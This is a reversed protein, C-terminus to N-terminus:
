ERTVLESLTRGTASRFDRALHAQDAYGLEYALAALEVAEGEEVRAAVEQLRFRRAVWKPSAGVHSRFLRQLRRVSLGSRRSLEDVRGIAEARLLEVLGVAESVLPDSRRERQAWEALVAVGRADTTAGLVADRLAEVRPFLYSLPVRQNRYAGLEEPILARAAGPRFKLARVRGRGELRRTWLETWVGVLRADEGEFVIHVCPDGLLETTHPADPPLDWSGAWM